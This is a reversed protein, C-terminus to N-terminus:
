CDVNTRHVSGEGDPGAVRHRCDVIRMAQAGRQYRRIRDVEGIRLKSRGANV